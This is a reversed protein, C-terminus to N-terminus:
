FFVFVFVYFRFVKFLRKGRSSLEWKSSKQVSNITMVQVKTKSMSKKQKKKEIRPTPTALETKVCSRLFMTFICTKKLINTENKEANEDALFREFADLRMRIRGFVEFFKWVSGFVESFKQFQQSFKAFIDRFIRARQTKKRM